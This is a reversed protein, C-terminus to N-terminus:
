EERAPAAPPTELPVLFEAYDDAFLLGRRDVFVLAPRGLDALVQLDASSFSELHLIAPLGAPMPASTIRGLVEDPDTGRRALKEALETLEQRAAERAQSARTRAAELSTTNSARRWARLGLTGIVGVLALAAVGVVWPRVEPPVFLGGAILLAVGGSTAGIALASPTFPARQEADLRRIELAQQRLKDHARLMALEKPSADKAGHRPGMTALDPGLDEAVEVDFAQAVHALLAQLQIDDALSSTDAETAMPAGTPPIIKLARVDRVRDDAVWRKTGMSELVVRVKPITDAAATRRPRALTHRAARALDAASVGDLDVPVLSVGTPRPRVRVATRGALGYVIEILAHM